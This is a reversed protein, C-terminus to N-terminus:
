THRIKLKGPAEAEPGSVQPQDGAFPAQIPVQILLFRRVDSMALFQQLQFVALDWLPLLPDGVLSHLEFPSHELLKSILAIIPCLIELSSSYM